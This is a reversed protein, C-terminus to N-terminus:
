KVDGLLAAAELELLLSQQSYADNDPHYRALDRALRAMWIIRAEDAPFRTSSLKKTADNWQWLEIQNAEDVAFPLTGRRYNDLASTLTRQASQATQPLLPIAQQVSLKQLIGAVISRLNPDSTDLMALLPGVVLPNMQAAASAIAARRAPDTEKALAELTAIVGPQGTAALDNRTMVRTEVSPDALQAVLTAIRQPDNSAAAAANMCADAFQAGAPALEKSQALQLMERSGFKAVLEVRQVDTLPLKALEDLIPKALEPRDLEILWTIAQFYEAPTKRPIELAARVAPNTEVIPPAEVAAAPPTAPPAAPQAFGSACPPAASALLVLTIKQLHTM